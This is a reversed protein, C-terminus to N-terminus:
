IYIYIDKVLAKIPIEIIIIDMAVIYIDKV